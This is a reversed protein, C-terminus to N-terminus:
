SRATLTSPANDGDGAGNAPKAVNQRVLSMFRDLHRALASDDCRRPAFYGSHCIAPIAARM